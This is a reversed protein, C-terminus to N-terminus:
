TNRGVGRISIVNVANGEPSRCLTEFASIFAAIETQALDVKDTNGQWLDTLGFNACPVEMRYPTLTTTDEYIVLFKRERQANPDTPAANSYKTKDGTWSDAVLAGMTVAEFATRFAGYDTLFGPISVATIADFNFSMTSTEESYDKVTFSGFHRPNIPM